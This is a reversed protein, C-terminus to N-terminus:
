SRKVWLVLWGLLRYGFIIGVLIGVWKGGEGTGYGYAALVAEGKVQCMGELESVYMCKCDVGCGYVRDQFENVMMGKFVYSQYDIYSFVYKYFVNLLKPTVLFGGVSMWLGNAFATLALAVVFNPFLSSVLV